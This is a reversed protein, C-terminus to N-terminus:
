DEVKLRRLSHEYALFGLGNPVTSRVYITSFGRWFGALRHSAWIKYIAKKLSISEGIQMYTKVVDQPYSFVWASFGAIMGSVLIQTYTLQNSQTLLLCYEKCIEFAAFQAAYGPVERLITILGGKFLGKLGETQMILKFCSLATVSPIFKNNSSALNISHFKQDNTQVQMKIKILETPTVICSALLGALSGGLLGRLFPNELQFLSNAKANCAFSVGNIIPISLLPFSLGKYFGKLGDSKLTRYICSGM